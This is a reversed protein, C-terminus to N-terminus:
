LRYVFLRRTGAPRIEAPEIGPVEFECSVFTAGAPLCERLRQWLAPMPVPSLFAFAVDIRKLPERWLDGRRLEANAVPAIRQRLWGIAVPLPALEVGVADVDPRQRAIFRPLGGLGSGLDVFRLRAGARPPPLEALVAEWVPRRSLFLPVQTRYVAGYALLVAGAAAAWAWAPLALTLAAYVALPFLGLLAPWWRDLRWLAAGSAGLAGVAVAVIGPTLPVRTAVAAVLGAAVLELALAKFAPPM